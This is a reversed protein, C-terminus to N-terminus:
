IGPYIVCFGNESGAVWPPNRIGLISIGAIRHTHGNRQEKRIIVKALPLTTPLGKTSNRYENIWFYKLDSNLSFFIQSRQTSYMHWKNHRARVKSQSINSIFCNEKTHGLYHNIWKHEWLYVCLLFKPIYLFPGQRNKPFYGFYIFPSITVRWFTFHNEHVEQRSFFNTQLDPIFIKNERHGTKQVCKKWTVIQIYLINCLSWPLILLMILILWSPGLHVVHIYVAMYNTILIINRYTIAKSVEKMTLINLYHFDLLFQIFVTHVYFLISVYMYLILFDTSFIYLSYLAKCWSILYFKLGSYLFM